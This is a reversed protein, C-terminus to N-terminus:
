PKSGFPCPTTLVNDREDEEPILGSPDAKARVLFRCFPGSFRVVGSEGPGLQALGGQDLEAGDVNVVAAPKFAIARGNNVMTISYVVSDPLPGPDAQIATIKLNPLPGPQFCSASRRTTARLRKGNTDLWRFKVIVRYRAGDRLATVRQTFNFARAGPKSKRWVKLEPLAVAHFRAGGVREQLTFRMQMSNAGRITKMQGVFEAFRKTIDPSPYCNGVRANPSAGAALASSAPLAAFAACGVLILQSRRAM